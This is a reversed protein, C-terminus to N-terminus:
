QDSAKINSLGRKEQETDFAAEKRKVIWRERVLRAAEGQITKNTPDRQTDGGAVVAKQAHLQQGKRDSRKKGTSPCVDEERPKHPHHVDEGTWAGPRELTGRHTERNSSEALTAENGRGTSRSLSAIDGPVIGAVLVFKKV